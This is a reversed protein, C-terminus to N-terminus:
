QASGEPPTKFIIRVVCDQGGRLHSEVIEAEVECGFFEGWMAIEHGLTCDCQEGGAGPPLHPCTCAGKGFHLTLADPAEDIVMPLRARLFAAFDALTQCAGAEARLARMAALHGHREACERGRRKRAAPTEDAGTM